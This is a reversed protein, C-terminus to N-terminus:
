QMCSWKQFVNPLRKILYWYNQRPVHIEYTKGAETYKVVNFKAM